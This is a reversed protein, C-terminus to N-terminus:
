TAFFVAGQSIYIFLRPGVGRYFGGMGEAAFIAKAADIVGRYQVASSPSQTMLRTQVRM